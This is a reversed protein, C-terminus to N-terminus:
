CLKGGIIIKRSWINTIGEQLVFTVIAVCLAIVAVNM